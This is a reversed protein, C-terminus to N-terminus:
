SLLPEFYEFAIGSLSLVVGAWLGFRVGAGPDCSSCRDQRKRYVAYFGYTLLAITTVVFYWKYPRAADLISIWAGAVGVAILAFPLLCCAACVGLAAVIGGATTWRVFRRERTRKCNCIPRPAASAERHLAHM